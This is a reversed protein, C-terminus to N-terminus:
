CLLANFCGFIKQLRRNEGAAKETKSRRFLLLLSM